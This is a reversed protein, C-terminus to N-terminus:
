GPKTRRSLETGPTMQQNLGVIARNMRGRYAATDHDEQEAMLSSVMHALLEVAARTAASMHLPEAHHMCSMLGWLRGAKMLPIVLTARVRMNKLYSTYMVSVHRLIARSMDVPRDALPLLRVPVYDVDPLHRLWSLAFLRRAPAPIDSAPFHLGLYGHLDHRKAEAIVEGSGDEAFQYAMVRDFGSFARVQTVARELIQNLSTSVQLNEM